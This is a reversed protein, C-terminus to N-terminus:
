IAATFRPDSSINIQRLRTHSPVSQQGVTDPLPGTQIKNRKAFIAQETVGAFAPTWSQIRALAPIIDPNKSACSHRIPHYGGSDSIGFQGV